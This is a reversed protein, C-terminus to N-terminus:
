PPELPVIELAEVSRNAVTTPSELHVAGSPLIGAGGFAEMTRWQAVVDEGAHEPPLDEWFAFGGAAMLRQRDFLVCGGVWAVKYLLWGGREIGIGAALHALNAANHLRWRDFEASGPRIREPQPRGQWPVFGELEAPRRDKLYSLGQVAAGVFGCGADALARSLRELMGPELWVDNDLFLVQPATSLGLLFDRQEAVGRRPLHREMRVPRGQARLIRVMAKVAPHEWVPNPSQDSVVVGFDPREQGALGSLTVALEAPREFSPILVELTAPLEQEGAGWEGCWRATV